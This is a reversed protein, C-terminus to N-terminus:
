AKRFESPSVGIGNKFFRTFYAPDNFNLFYAIESVSYSTHLLYKKAEMLLQKNILQSPSNQAIKQCIRNLHVTSIKLEQAYQNISKNQNLNKKISNQFEQFYRLSQNETESDVTKQSFNIRYLCVFLSLFIAKLMTQKEARNDILENLIINKYTLLMDFIKKENKFDFYKMKNLENFILSNSKSIQDFYSETLTIVEGSINSEFVFGHLSNNPIFVAGPGTIEIKTKESFLVGQGATIIFLQVLDTHLHEKIEWDYMKSRAQLPETHIFEFVSSYTNEGYLGKYIILDKSM